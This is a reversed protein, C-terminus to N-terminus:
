TQWNIEDVKSRLRREYRKVQEIGTTWGIWKKDSEVADRLARKFLQVGWDKRFPADPIGTKEAVKYKNQAEIKCFSPNPRMLLNLYGDKTGGGEMLPRPEVVAFQTGYGQERGQRIGTLSSSRLLYVMMAKLM